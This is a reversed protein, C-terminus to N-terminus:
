KKLTLFYVGVEIGIALTALIITKSLDTKITHLEDTAGNSIEQIPTDIPAQYHFISSTKQPVDHQIIHVFKHLSRRHDSLLKQRKTKKPM